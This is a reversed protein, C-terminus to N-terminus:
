WHVGLTHTTTCRSVHMLTELTLSSLVYGLVAQDRAIWLIYAPNTEKSVTKDANTISIFQEPEKETGTIM